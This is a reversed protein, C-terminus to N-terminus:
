GSGMQPGIRKAAALLPEPASRDIEVTGGKKTGVLRPTAGSNDYIAAVDAQKLFWPLQEFSRERRERIKREPVTHGGKAVRLRVREINLEVSNVLVYLLRIEFGFGKAKRVLSRYKPTSLM